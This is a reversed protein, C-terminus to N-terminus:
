DIRPSPKSRHRLAADIQKQDYQLLRKAGASVGGELLLDLAARVVAGRNRQLGDALQDLQRLQDASVKANIQESFKKARMLAFIIPVQTLQRM